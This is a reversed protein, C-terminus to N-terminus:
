GGDGDSDSANAARSWHNTKSLNRNCETCEIKQTNQKEIKKRHKGGAIM